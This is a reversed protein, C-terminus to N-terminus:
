SERETKDLPRPNRQPPAKPALKIRTGGLSQIIEVAGSLIRSDANKQCYSDLLPMLVKIDAVVSAAPEAGSRAYVNHGAIFGQVWEAAMARAEGNRAEKWQVWDACTRTGMGSLKVDRALSPGAAGIALLVLLPVSLIPRNM